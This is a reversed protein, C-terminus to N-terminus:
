NRKLNTSIYDDLRKRDSYDPKKKLFQEYEAAAKDKMGAANFVWGLHLHAEPRGLKVAENLYPIAKSPQGNQILVEGLLFNADASQPQAEVARSLSAIAAEYNKQASYLKALNVLAMVFTPKAKLASLYANEAEAFSNKVSHVIGLLTWAPFDLKDKEVIRQLLSIADDYRKQEAAEQAKRLLNQNEGSRSYVDAASIVGTKAPATKSKLSLILDQQFGYPSSSLERIVLRVRAIEVSDVEVALEYDGKHLNIFRYRSRNAVSQRGVEGDGDRYLVVVISSSPGANNAAASDIRVEGFLTQGGQAQVPSAALVLALLGLALCAAGSAV